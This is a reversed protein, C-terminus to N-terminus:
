RALYCHYKRGALTKEKTKKKKQALKGKIYEPTNPIMSESIADNVASDGCWFGWIASEKFKDKLDSAIKGLTGLIYGNSLKM